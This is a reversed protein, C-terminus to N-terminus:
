QKLYFYINRAIKLSNISIVIKKNNIYKTSENPSLKILAEM